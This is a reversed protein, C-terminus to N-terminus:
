GADSGGQSLKLAVESACSSRDKTVTEEIGTVIWMVPFGYFHPQRAGCGLGGIVM